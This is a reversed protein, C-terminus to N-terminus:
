KQGAKRPRRKTAKPADEIIHALAVRAMSRAGARTRQSPRGPSLDTLKDVFERVLVGLRDVGSWGRAQVRISADLLVREPVRVALWVSVGDPDRSVRVGLNREAM